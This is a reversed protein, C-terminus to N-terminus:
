ELAARAARKRAQKRTPPVCDGDHEDHVALGEAGREALRREVVEPERVAREDAQAVQVEEGAPNARHHEVAHDVGGLGELLPELLLGGFQTGLFFRELEIHSEDFGLATLLRDIEQGYERATQFRPEPEKAMGRVIM